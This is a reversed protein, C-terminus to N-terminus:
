KNPMPKNSMPMKIQAQPIVQSTVTQAPLMGGITFLTDGLKVLGRHDMSAQQSDSLHWSFDSFDLRWVQNDATSPVGNYGIGSYNYPNDSGGIFYASQSQKDGIAAMRYRAIGTPHELKRWDIKYPTKDNITGIYCATEPAYSRRKDLHVDVRVGDCVVMKNDVIAAAQGFVPKGPYPSAQQWRDNQTDYVQVLNVNGDNHWGSVLYIYRDQYPLAVSDDVPVPMPALLQYSKDIVDFAYVDPVSVESHNKAVTYGGFVYAKGKVTTAISALRGTLGDIPQAIPVDPIQQWAKDGVKLMFAQNTVARYDKDKLLGNFSLLYQDNGVNVQTVANNAVPAPLAPLSLSTQAIAQPLALTACLAFTKKMDILQMM